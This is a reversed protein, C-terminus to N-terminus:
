FIKPIKKETLMARVLNMVNRNKREAVGNQQPTYAAILQRKEGHQKCFNNFEVSNFEGGRHTRLCKISMGVEKEVLTKFCKFHYFIKSKELLFYTWAKRSFDDMFCLFYRKQSGLAPTIPGCLDAHVLGLKKTREVQRKNSVSDSTAQREYM